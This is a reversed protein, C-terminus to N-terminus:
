AVQCAPVYEGNYDCNIIPFVWVDYDTEESFLDDFYDAVRDFEDDDDITVFIDEGDEDKDRKLIVYEIMGDEEEDESESETSVMAYYEIGDLEASGVVEFETENGDEDTLTYYESEFENDNMFTNGDKRREENIINYWLVSQKDIGKTCNQSFEHKHIFAWIRLVFGDCKKLIWCM